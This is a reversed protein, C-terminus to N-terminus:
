QGDYVAFYALNVDNHFPYVAIHDDEMTRRYHPNLEDKVGFNKFLSTNAAKSPPPPPVIPAIAVGAEAGGDGKRGKRFYLIGAIAGGILFLGAGAGIGAYVGVM